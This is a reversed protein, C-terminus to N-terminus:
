NTNPTWGPSTTNPNAASFTPRASFTGSFNIAGKGEHNTGADCWRHEGPFIPFSTKFSTWGARQYAWNIPGYQWVVPLNTTTDDHGMIFDIYATATLDWTVYKWVSNNLDDGAATKSMLRIGARKRELNTWDDEWTFPFGPISSSGIADGGRIWIQDGNGLIQEGAAASIQGTGNRLQYTIVTRYAV